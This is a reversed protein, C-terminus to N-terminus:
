STLHVVGLFQVKSTELSLHEIWDQVVNCIYIREAIESLQYESPVQARQLAGPLGLLVRSSIWNWHSKGSLSSKEARKPALELSRVPSSKRNWPLSQLPLCVLPRFKAQLHLRRAVGPASKTIWTNECASNVSSTGSPGKWCNWDSSLGGLVDCLSPWGIHNFLIHQSAKQHLPPEFDKLGDMETYNITYQKPKLLSPSSLTWHCGACYRWKAWPCLNENELPVKVFSCTFRRTHLIGQPYPEEKSHLSQELELHQMKSMEPGATSQAHEQASIKHHWQFCHYLRVYMCMCTYIYVYIYLIYIYIYMSIYMYIYM